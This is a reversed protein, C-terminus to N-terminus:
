DDPPVTYGLHRLSERKKRWRPLVKVRLDLYIQSGVLEEIKARAAAGIQRIASGRAGILIGKQSAREVYISAGVFVPHSGERFEEVRVAVSYPVEDRFLEFVTERILEAAFFRVPQSSIEDAPFFFPSEPLLRTVTTRLEAIGDGTLASVRVVSSFGAGVSWAEALRIQDASAVDTKNVVAVTTNARSRLARLAASEVDMPPRLPDVILLAVDAEAVSRLAEHLMSRHLLYRPEVLGPTDIFIMQVGDRTDIGVVRERTTQPLPTVISLKQDLLQNLLSSKGANPYGLLVVYGARTGRNASESAATM